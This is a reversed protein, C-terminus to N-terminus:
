LVLRQIELPEDALRHPQVQDVLRLLLPLELPQADRDLVKAKAVAIALVHGLDPGPGPQQGAGPVAADELVHGRHLDDLLHEAVVPKGIELFPEAVAIFFAVVAHLVAFAIEVEDAPQHLLLPDIVVEVAVLRRRTRFLHHQAVPDVAMGRHRALRRQAIVGAVVGVAPAPIVDGFPGFLFAQCGSLDGQGIVVEQRRSGIELHGVGDLLAGVAVGVVLDVIIGAVIALIGPQAVLLGAHPHLGLRDAVLEPAAGAAHARQGGPEGELELIVRVALGVRIVDDGIRHMVQLDVGIELLPVQAVIELRAVHIEGLLDRAIDIGAHEARDGLGFLEARRQCRGPGADGAHMGGGDDALRPFLDPGVFVAAYLDLEVPVAVALAVLLCAAPDTDHRWPRALAPAHDRHRPDSLLHHDLEFLAVRIARDAGAHEVVLVRHGGIVEGAVLRLHADLGVAGLAAAAVVLQHELVLFVALQHPDLRLLVVLYQDLVLRHRGDAEVLDVGARM